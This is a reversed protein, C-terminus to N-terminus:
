RGARFSERTSIYVEWTRGIGEGLKRYIKSDKIDTLSTTSCVKALNVRDREGEGQRGEVVGVQAARGHM